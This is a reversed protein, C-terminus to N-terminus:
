DQLKMRSVSFDDMLTMEKCAIRGKIQTTKLVEEDEQVVTQTYYM